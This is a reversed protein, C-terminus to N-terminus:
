IQINFSDFLSYETSILLISVFLVSFFIIIKMGRFFTNFIILNLKFDVLFLDPPIKITKEYIICLTISPIPTTKEEFFGLVIILVTIAMM